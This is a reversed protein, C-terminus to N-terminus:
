AWNWSSFVRFLWTAERAAKEIVAMPHRWQYTKAVLFNLVKIKGLFRPTTSAGAFDPGAKKAWFHRPQVK